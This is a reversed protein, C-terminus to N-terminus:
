GARGMQSQRGKLKLLLQGPVDRPGEMPGVGNEDIKFKEMGGDTEVEKAMEPYKPYDVVSM